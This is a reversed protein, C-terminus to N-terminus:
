EREEIQTQERIFSFVQDCKINLVHAFEGHLMKEAEKLTYKDALHMEKGKDKQTQQRMYLTKILTILEARDGGALIEQYRYRRVNEEEIWISAVDPMMKVLAYIQEVSMVPRMNASALENNVPVFITARDDYVPKLVYYEIPQGCLNRESIEAIRCVGQAGYVVADNVKFMM